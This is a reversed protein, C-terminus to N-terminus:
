KGGFEIGVLLFVILDVADQRHATVIHSALESYSDTNKNCKICKM